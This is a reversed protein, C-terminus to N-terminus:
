DGGADVIGCDVAGVVSRNVHECQRAFQYSLLDTGALHLVRKFASCVNHAALHHNHFLVPVAVVTLFVYPHRCCRGGEFYLPLLENPNSGCKKSGGKTHHRNQRGIVFENGVLGHM